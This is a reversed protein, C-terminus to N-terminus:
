SAAEVKTLLDRLVRTREDGEAIARRLCDECDVNGYIVRTADGVMEVSSVLACIPRDVSHMHRM